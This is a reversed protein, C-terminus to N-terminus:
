PPRPRWPADLMFRQLANRAKGLEPGFQRMIWDTTLFRPRAVKGVFSLFSSWEWGGADASLGARVPNLLIYRVLELLHHNSEVLGSYFRGQFLHGNYGYTQNFLQAYRGNLWQMGRSLNPEPTEILLHFHNPMLCYAHCRWEFREVGATLLALFCLYDARRSFIEQGRNGRATIHYICGPAQERLPRPVNV